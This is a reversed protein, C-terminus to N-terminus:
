KGMYLQMVEIAEQEEADLKEIQRKIDELEQNLSERKDKHAEIIEDEKCFSQEGVEMVKNDIHYLAYEGQIDRSIIEKVVKFKSEKIENNKQLEEVLSTDKNTKKLERKYELVINKISSPTLKSYKMNLDEYIEKEKVGNNKLEEYKAIIEDKNVSIVTMYDEGRNRLNVMMEGELKVKEILEDITKEGQLEDESIEYIYPRLVREYADCYAMLDLRSQELCFESMLQKQERNLSNLWSMLKSNKRDERRREARNIM